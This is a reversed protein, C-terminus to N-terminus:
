STRETIKIQKEDLGILLFKREHIYFEFSTPSTWKSFKFSTIEGMFGFSRYIKELDLLKSSNIKICCGEDGFRSM